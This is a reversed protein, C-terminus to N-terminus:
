AVNKEARRTFSALTQKLQLDCEDTIIKSDSRVSRFLEPSLRKYLTEFICVQLIRSEEVIMSMSYNQSHRLKGHRAAADSVAKRGPKPQTRLRHALDWILRPVYGIRDEKSLQVHPLEDDREVRELWDVITEVTFRELTDAVIDALPQLNTAPLTGTANINPTM